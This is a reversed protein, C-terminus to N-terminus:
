NSRYPFERDGSLNTPASLRAAGELLLAHVFAQPLNGRLQRQRVDFEEALLGPPGSASRGREFLTRAALNDGQQQKALALVFNCLLFAGEAKHLPRDDQRFRYVYDDRRLEAEVAAITALHRPDSAPTAGRIGPLLLATDIRSDDPSRQWRGEPHLCDASVDALVVDALASWRGSQAAPAAGAVARLGSACTLRSHAWRENDLEWIGADPESWRNEIAGVAREVATWHSSDLRGCRSAMGFLELAEGFADLQFQHNVWNGAKDAGGPYGSLHSLSREDPVPGGAVTYAPKLQDGDVLLRASVFNVASDLLHFHGHAAAAVGAYCQDRIWAYRYDYNRGQQAREPLSMTASAVMGGGTSTLGHLVAVAGEADRPGVIGDDMEPVADRWAAETASWCGTPNPPDTCLETDTLELVFDHTEGAALDMDLTLPGSRARRAQRAGSWRFRLNGSRGTWAGHDDGHTHQMARAGFGARVDLVVRLRAPGDPASVRRLIVATRPDAPLALADRCEVIGSTTVWRSNWVLTRPEYYGGWTHRELPTVAYCGAGGILTSFVADADWVPACMWAIDGSPGILAGREGDALLAYDRLVAPAFEAPPLSDTPSV